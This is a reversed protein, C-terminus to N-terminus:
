WASGSTASDRGGRLSAGGREHHHELRRGAGFGGRGVHEGLDATLAEGAHVDHRVAGRCVPSSAILTLLYWSKPQAVVSPMSQCRNTSSCAPAVFLEGVPEGLTHVAVNTALGDDVGLQDLGGM